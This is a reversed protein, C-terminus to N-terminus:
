IKTIHSFSAQVKKVMDSPLLLLLLKFLVCVFSSKKLCIEVKVKAKIKRSYFYYICVCLTKQIFLTKSNICMRKISNMVSLAM